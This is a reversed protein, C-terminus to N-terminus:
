FQFYAGAMAPSEVAPLFVFSYSDKKKDEM